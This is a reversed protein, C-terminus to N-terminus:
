RRGGFVDFGITVGARIEKFAVGDIWGGRVGFDVSLNDRMQWIAGILGSGTESGGYERYYFLEAV